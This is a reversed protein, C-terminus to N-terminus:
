STSESTPKSKAFLHPYKKKMQDEREWTFEHGRRSNWHVKVIPIRSQKLQKVERDIIEIPEKIFNLKDDIQIEDLSIAIPEDAYCKKLISVHFTRHVHSLQDPLELRYAVMGVKALVKFPGIYRPNLKGWKGFRIVRNRNALSKQRDRAAQIHKKIQFIKETTEHVTEPGTLQADGVEAWSIPSRCKRGYLAEFPAAKRFDIVCARLMDELTQITRESQGDTQLHYATSMDLQTGLAKNISKWFQYTFRGDQDSIILVLVGHKSIVEKLYQRMLKEMLDNEKMPLFYASKTLRDVIVWSTDQGTSTKPLKTVFDMTINEWKWVLNPIWSRGNLCLTGNARPELKKIMGCLDKTGYNEEKRAKIQANLIEVRLNLGVTMVLARVRLPKIREKRSLADAVVNAKGPHYHIECNYDSLLELWRHQRMNLEKQDLIHQLSKHDTFVVCKMGYLYHRWTKLAFVVVGLELDYTTYNKEYIKLQCSVYAIVREKQMLVAGLGKHLADYYVMFNESREPLALISASYLKQKLKQFTAEEKKGWNFKVSKMGAGMKALEQMELPALRYPAQAVPAAGPVFDIQFEVQRAPPLRPLYELFVEPFKWVIPVDELRKEQSKVETEKKTIRDGQIILIEDGFPIRAIKEDCVIMAHNNELWDMGIIINFSGLEVPMLDINFPHGLFGITCGRLMTNTKAIRRYALEVVYTVDTVVNSRPNANGGGIAYAKRRAELIIPKNGHNHNKLKPCDKKFHWHPGVYVRGENGGDTYAKIKNEASRIAYGKLKQDILSNALRIADKLNPRGRRSGNYYVVSDVRSIEYYLCGNNKVTLNWLETEMKQIENRPCYVKTMLKMLDRWTMACAANVGVKRKHSNWWTLASDLLNYTAYKVQYVEPCSSIHFVIEIKEFWVLLQCLVEIIRMQIGNENNGGDGHNGNGNGNDGDNGNQSQSETEFANAARTAEYNALAEAVRQVILEKIAKPTMGSRTITMDFLELRKLRKRADDRDRRIQCFEEQLLAMHHCLSDVRDREICLLARVRLNERGLRRIRNTLGAREREGSAM